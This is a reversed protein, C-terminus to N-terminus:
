KWDGTSDGWGGSDHKEDKKEREKITRILTKIEHSDRLTPNIYRVCEINNEIAIKIINEDNTISDPLYAFLPKESNHDGAGWSSQDFVGENQLSLIALEKIKLIRESAFKFAGGSSKKSKAGWGFEETRKYNIAKFVIHEDNKLRESAFELAYGDENIAIELIENNDKLLDSAFKLAIPNQKIAFKVIDLDNQLEPSFYELDIGYNSVVLESIERDSGFYDKVYEIVRAGKSILHKILDRNSKVSEGAFQINLPYQYIFPECFSIDERLESPTDKFIIPSASRAANIIDKDEKLNKALYFYLNDEDDRYGNFYYKDNPTNNNKFKEFLSCIFDKDSLIDSNSFKLVSLEESTNIPLGMIFIKDQRFNIPLFEFNSLSKDIILKAVEDDILVEPLEKLLLPYNSAIGRIVDKNSLLDESILSIKIENGNRRLATFLEQKNTIM